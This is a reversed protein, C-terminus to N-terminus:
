GRGNPHCSLCSPSAWVYGSEGSHKDDMASQRHEHCTICSFVAFDGPVIHCEACDRNSHPGSVVNFSTHDFVAGGWTTTQHCSTCDTTFGTGAHEQEYDTMHCAYCDQTGTPHFLTESTSGVHCAICLLQDHNPILEFGTNLAHDFNAGDWDDATHCDLCSTPFGSGGHEENYDDLHCAICDQPGMPNRPLGGGPLSHCATCEIGAHQGLLEFGGSITFHDFAIDRFDLVSHCETCDTSFGLQQHDVLPATVYDDMHCTACEPDLPAFAGGLDDTHCSECTTQLHAGELPFDAPHVIGRPFESFSETSHCSACTRTPTGLHVDQHCSACDDQQAGVEDFTLELHCSACTADEHRGDLVFATAADHNFDLDVRLPSWAESTHCSVCTLEDPLEGHPNVSGQAAAARPGALAVVISSIVALRSTM